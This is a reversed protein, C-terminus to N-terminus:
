EGNEKIFCAVKLVGRKNAKLSAIRSCDNMAIEKQAATHAIWSDPHLEECKTLAANCMVVALIIEYVM